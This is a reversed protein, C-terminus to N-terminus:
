ARMKGEFVEKVREMLQECLGAVVKDAADCVVLADSYRKDLYAKEIIHLLRNRKKM